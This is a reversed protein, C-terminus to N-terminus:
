KVRSGSEVGSWKIKLRVMARLSEQSFACFFYIVGAPYPRGEPVNSLCLGQGSEGCLQGEDRGVM